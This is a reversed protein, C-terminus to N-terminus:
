HFSGIFVSIQESPSISVFFYSAVCTLMNRAIEGQTVDALSCAKCQLVNQNSLDEETMWRVLAGSGAAEGADAETGEDEAGGVITTGSQTTAHKEQEHM